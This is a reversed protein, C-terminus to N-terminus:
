YRHLLLGTREMSDRLSIELRTNILKFIVRQFECCKALKVVGLANLM